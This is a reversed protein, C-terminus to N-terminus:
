KKISWNAWWDMVEEGTQWDTKLGANARAKIMRDFAKIYNQKYKPYREFDKIMNKSGALPCGICGLRKFGEDYLCCYKLDNRRIYEWVEEDSWDVIPNLIHKGKITCNELMQRKEENDSMLFIERDAKAKKSQSGYRDFEVMQRNNKRRASEAWRVGTVVFRNVGNNEKLESCCYRMLSTPPLKKKEILRWMTLEPYTFEVEPYETKIFRVLEPPDVTTLNYHADFKVNAKKALDYIVISDKGGSFALYYGKQKPEFTRFREIAINVKDEICIFQNESL